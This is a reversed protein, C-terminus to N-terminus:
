FVTRYVEIPLKLDDFTQYIGSDVESILLKYGVGGLVVVLFSERGFKFDDIM